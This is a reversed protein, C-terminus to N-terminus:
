VHTTTARIEITGEILISSSVADYMILDYSYKGVAIGETTDKSLELTIANEEIDKEIHFGHILTQAVSKERIEAKFSM